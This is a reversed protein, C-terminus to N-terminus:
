LTEENFKSSVACKDYIVKIKNNGAEEYVITGSYILPTKGNVKACGGYILNESSIKFTVAGTKIDNVSFYGKTELKGGEQIKAADTATFTTTIWTNANREGNQPEGTKSEDAGSSKSYIGQKKIFIMKGPQVDIDTELNLTMGINATKTVGEKTGTASLTYKFDSVSAKGGAEPFKKSDDQDSKSVTGSIKYSIKVDATPTSTKNKDGLNKLANFLDSLDCDIVSTSTGKTFGDVDSDTTDGSKKPKCTETEEALSLIKNQNIISLSERNFISDHKLNSYFLGFSSAGASSPSDTTHTSAKFFDEINVEKAISNKDEILTKAQEKTIAGSSSTPTEGPLGAKLGTSDTGSDSKSGCSMSLFAVILCPAAFYRLLM